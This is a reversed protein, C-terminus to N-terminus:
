LTKVNMQYRFDNHKYTPLAKTLIDAIMEGTPLYSVTIFGKALLDKIFLYRVDIHKTRKHCEQNELLRQASQNENLLLCSLKSCMIELWLSKIFLIDKCADSMALYEAETSSM